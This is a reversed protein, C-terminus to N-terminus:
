VLDKRMARARKIMDEAEHDSILKPMSLLREWTMPSQNKHVLRSFFKGMNMKHQKAMKRFTEWDEEKVGKITKVTEM